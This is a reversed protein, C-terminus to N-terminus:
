AVRVSQWVLGFIAHNLHSTSWQEGWLVRWRQEDQEDELMDLVANCDELVRRAADTM